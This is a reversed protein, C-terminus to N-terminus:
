HIGGTGPLLDPGLDRHDGLRAAAELDAGVLKAGPRVSQQGGAGQGALLQGKEVRLKEVTLGGVFGAAHLVREVVLEEGAQIGARLVDVQEVQEIVANTGPLCGTLCFQLLQAHQRRVAALDAGGILQGRCSHVGKQQFVGAQRQRLGVLHIQVRKVVQRVIVGVIQGLAVGVVARDGKGATLPLAAIDPKVPLIKVVAAFGVLADSQQVPPIPLIPEHGM